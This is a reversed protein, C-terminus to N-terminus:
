WWVSTVRRGPKGAHDRLLRLALAPDDFQNLPVAVASLGGSHVLHRHLTDATIQSWGAVAPWAHASHDDGVSVTVGGPTIECRASRRPATRKPPINPSGFMTALYALVGVGICAFFWYGGGALVGAAAAVVVALLRRLWLVRRPALTRRAEALAAPDVAYTATAGVGRDTPHHDLSMM